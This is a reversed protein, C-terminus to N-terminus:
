SRHVAGVIILICGLTAVLGSILADALTMYLQIGLLVGVIGALIWVPSVKFGVLLFVVFLALLIWLPTFDAILPSRVDVAQSDTAVDQITANDKVTLEVMYTGNLSFTHSPASSSSTAGDGFVWFYTYPATGGTVNSYFQVALPQPGQSPNALINVALKAPAIEPTPRVTITDVAWAVSGSLTATGPNENGGNAAKSAMTLAVATGVAKVVQNDTYGSPYASNTASGVWSYVVIYIRNEIPSGVVLPPDPNASTAVGPPNVSAPASVISAGSIRYSIDAFRTSASATITIQTGENGIAYHFRCELWGGSAGPNFLPEWGSPWSLTTPGGDLATCVLLLDDKTIGGPLVAFHTTAGNDSGIATSVVIPSPNLARASPTPITLLVSLCILPLLVLAFRKM